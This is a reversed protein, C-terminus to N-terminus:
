RKIRKNAHTIIGCGTIGVLTAIGTTREGLVSGDFMLLAGILCVLVGLTLIAYQSSNIAANM